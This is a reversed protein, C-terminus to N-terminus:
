RGKEGEGTRPSLTVTLVEVGELGERRGFGGRGGRGGGETGEPIGRHAGGQARAGLGEGGGRGGGGGGWKLTVTLGERLM